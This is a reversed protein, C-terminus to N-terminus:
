CSKARFIDCSWCGTVTYHLLIVLTHMIVVAVTRRTSPAYGDRSPTSTPQWATWGESKVSVVPVGLSELINAAIKWLGGLIQM